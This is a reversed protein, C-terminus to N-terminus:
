KQNKRAEALEARLGNVLDMLEAKEKKLSELTKHLVEMEAMKRVRSRRAAETNKQRKLDLEALLLAPDSPRPKPKRGPKKKAPVLSQEQSPSAIPQQSANANSSAATPTSPPPIAANLSGLLAMELDSFGACNGSLEVLPDGGQLGDINVGYDFLPLSDSAGMPSGLFVSSPPTLLPTQQVDDFLLPSSSSFDDLSPSSSFSSLPTGLPPSQLQHILTAANNDNFLSLFDDFEGGMKADGDMMLLSTMQQQQM